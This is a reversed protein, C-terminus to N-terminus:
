AKVALGLKERLMREADKQSTAKVTGSLTVGNHTFNVRIDRLRGPIGLSEAISDYQSCYGRKVAYQAIDEWIWQIRPDDTSIHNGEPTTGLKRPKPKATKDWAEGNPAKLAGREINYSYYAMPQGYTIKPNRIRVTITNRRVATVEATDNRKFTHNQNYGSASAAPYDRDFSVTQGKQYDTM